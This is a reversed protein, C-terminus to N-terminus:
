LRTAQSALIEPEKAVSSRDLALSVTQLLKTLNNSGSLHNEQKDESLDGLVNTSPCQTTKSFNEEIPLPKVNSSSVAINADIHEATM